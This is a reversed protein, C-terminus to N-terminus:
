SDMIRFALLVTDDDIAKLTRAVLEDSRRYSGEIAAGDSARSVHASNPGHRRCACCAGNRVHKLAEFCRRENAIFPTLKTLFAAEDIAGESLAWTDEAVGARLSGHLKALLDCLIPHLDADGAAEPDIHVAVYM